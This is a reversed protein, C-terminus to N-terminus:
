PSWNLIVDNITLSNTDGDLIIKYRVYRDNNHQLQSIRLQTNPGIAVLPDSYIWPGGSNDSTAIRFRVNGGTQTGQWLLTNFGAGSASGTDFVSSILVCNESAGSCTGIAPKLSGSTNTNVSTASAFRTNLESVPGEQGSGGSWDTQRFVLNRWRTVYRASSVVSNSGAIPWSTTLIIKQTSPDDAGAGIGGGSDRQVNEVIFSRTFIINNVSIQEQGSQVVLQGSSTAIFYNMGKTLGYINNWSGEIVSTLNDSLSVNLASAIQNNGSLQSSRLILFLASTATGIMLIGISMAVIMEILSQGSRNNKIFFYFYKV